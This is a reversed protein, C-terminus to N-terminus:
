ESWTVFEVYRVFRRDTSVAAIVIGGLGGPYQRGYDNRWSAKYIRKSSGAIQNVYAVAGDIEAQTAGPRTLASRLEAETTPDFTSINTIDFSSYYTWQLTYQNAVGQSYPIFGEQIDASNSLVGSVGFAEAPTEDVPYVSLPAATTAADNLEHFSSFYSRADTTFGTLFTADNVKPALYAREGSDVVSDDYLFSSLAGRIESRNVVAGEPSTAARATNMRSEFMPQTTSLGALAAPAAVVALVGIMSKLSKSKM